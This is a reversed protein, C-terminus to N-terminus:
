EDNEKAPIRVYASTQGLTHKMVELIDNCTETRHAELGLLYNQMTFILIPLDEEPFRNPLFAKYHEAGEILEDLFLDVAKDKDPEKRAAAFAKSVYSM